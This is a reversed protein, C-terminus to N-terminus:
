NQYVTGGFKYVVGFSLASPDNDTAGAPAAGLASQGHGWNTASYNVGSDNNTSSYAIYATFNDAVAYDVGVAFMDANANAADDDLVVYHAKLTVAKMPTVSAGVHAVSRDDNNPVLNSLQDTKTYSNMIAYGGGVSFIDYTYSLSLAIESPDEVGPANSDVDVGIYGLGAKIGMGSDYNLKAIIASADGVAVQNAGNNTSPAMYALTGTFGSVSPSTYAVTGSARDPGVGGGGLLNGLDGIQDAFLNYDYIWQNQADLNGAVLTGFSGTVGAFSQRASTFFGNNFGNGAEANFDGGNGDDNSGRGTLDLGMEYQALATIGNGLDYSAKVGLRSANSAITTTSSTGNDVADASLHAQGYVEIKTKSISEPSEVVAIDGGAAVLASAVVSLLVLKKM